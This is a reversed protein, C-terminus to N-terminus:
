ITDEIEAKKSALRALMVTAAEENFRKGIEIMQNERLFDLRLTAVRTRVVNDSWRYTTIAQIDGTKM